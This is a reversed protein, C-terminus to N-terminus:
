GVVLISRGGDKTVRKRTKISLWERGLAKVEKNDDSLEDIILATACIVIAQGTQFTTYNVCSCWKHHHNFVRRVPLQVIKDHAEDKTIDIPM